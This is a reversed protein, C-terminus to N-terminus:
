PESENLDDTLAQDWLRREELEEQWVDPNAKLAAYSENLSQFFQQKEWETTLVDVAEVMSIERKASLRRLIDRARESVRLTTTAM